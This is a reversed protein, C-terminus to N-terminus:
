LCEEYIWSTGSSNFRAVWLVKQIIGEVNLDINSDSPWFTQSNTLALSLIVATNEHTWLSFRITNSESMPSNHSRLQKLTFVKKEMALTLIESAWNSGQDKRWIRGKPRLDTMSPLCSKSCQSRKFAFYKYDESCTSFDWWKQVGLIVASCLVSMSNLSLLIVHVFFLLIWSPILILCIYM